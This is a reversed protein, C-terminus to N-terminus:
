FTHCYPAHCDLPDDTTADIGCAPFPLPPAPAELFLFSLLRIADSLDIAGDDNADMADWCDSTPRGDDFLHILIAIPDAINLRFDLNADGRFYLPICEPNSACDADAFDIEEDGDDDVLNCCDEWIWAEEAATRPPFPASSVLLTAAVAIARVARPTPM